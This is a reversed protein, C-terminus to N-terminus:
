KQNAYTTTILDVDLYSETVVSTGGVYSCTGLYEHVHLYLSLRANRPLPQSLGDEM